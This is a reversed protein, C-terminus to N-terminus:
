ANFNTNIQFHNYIEKKFQKAKTIEILHKLFNLNVMNIFM